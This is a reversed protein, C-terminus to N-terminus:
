RGRSRPAPFALRTDTTAARSATGCARRGARRSPPHPPEPRPEPLCPRRPLCADRATIRSGYSVCLFMRFSAGHLLEPVDCGDCCEAECCGEGQRTAGRAVVGC